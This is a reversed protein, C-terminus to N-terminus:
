RYNIISITYRNYIKEHDAFKKTFMNNRIYYSGLLNFM